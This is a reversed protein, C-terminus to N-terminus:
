CPLAVPKIQLHKRFIALFAYALVVVDLLDQLVRPKSVQVDFVHDILLLLRGILRFHLAFRIKSVEVWLHHAFTQCFRNDRRFANSQDLVLVFGEM